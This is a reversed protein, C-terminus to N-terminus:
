AGMETTEIQRKDNRGFLGSNYLSAKLVHLPKEFFIVFVWKETEM